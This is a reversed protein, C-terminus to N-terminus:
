VYKSAKLYRCFVKYKRLEFMSNKVSIDLSSITAVDKSYTQKLNNLGGNANRIENIFDLLITSNEEHFIRDPNTAVDNTNHIRLTRTVIQLKM